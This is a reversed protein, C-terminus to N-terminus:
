KVCTNADRCAACEVGITQNAMAWYCFPFANYGIAGDCDICLDIDETFSHNGVMHLKFDSTKNFFTNCIHCTNEM